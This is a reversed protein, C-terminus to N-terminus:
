VPVVTFRYPYLKFITPNAHSRFMVLVLHAYVFTGLFLGLRPQPESGLQVETMLFDSQDLVFPLAAAILPSYIFFVRDFVPGKIFPQAPSSL